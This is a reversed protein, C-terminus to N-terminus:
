SQSGLLLLNPNACLYLELCAKYGLRVRGPSHSLVVHMAMLFGLRVRTPNGSTSGHMVIAVEDRALAHAELAGRLFRSYDFSCKELLSFFLVRRLPPGQHVQKASFLRIACREGPSGASTLSIVVGAGAEGCVCVFM